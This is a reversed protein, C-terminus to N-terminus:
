ASFAQQVKAIRSAITGDDSGDDSDNDFLLQGPFEQGPLLQLIITVEVLLKVGVGVWCSVFIERAFQGCDGDQCSMLGHILREEAFAFEHM